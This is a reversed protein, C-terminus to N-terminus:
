SKQVVNLLEDWRDVIIGELTEQGVGYVIANLVCSINGAPLGGGNRSVAVAKFDTVHLGIYGSDAYMATKVHGIPNGPLGALHTSVVGLLHETAAVTKELQANDLSLNCSRVVVAAHEATTHRDPSSTVDEGNVAQEPGRPTDLLADAFAVIRCDGLANLVIAENRPHMALIRVSLRELLDPNVDVPRNIVPIDCVQVARALFPARAFLQDMGAAAAARRYDVVMVSRVKEGYLACHQLTEAVIDPGAVGSPEVLLIDPNIEERVEMVTRELDDRMSCCICGAYLERVQLGVNALIASDVPVQGIENEIVAVSFGRSSYTEALALLLTTKGSGLFGGISIITM